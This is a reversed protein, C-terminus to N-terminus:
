YLTFLLFFVELFSDKNQDFNEPNPFLGSNLIIENNRVLDLIFEYNTEIMNKINYIRQLVGTSLVLSRDEPNLSDINKLRNEVCCNLAYFKYFLFASVVEGLAKREETEEISDDELVGQNPLPEM